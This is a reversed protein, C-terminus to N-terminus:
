GIKAASGIGELWQRVAVYDGETAVFATNPIANMRKRQAKYADVSMAKLASALGAEVPDPLLIGVRAGQLWRGVESDRRGIPVCRFYGGEYLRNPLLWDSNAGEDFYDVMWNFHVSRYLSALDRSRDFPGLFSMGLSRSIVDEFLGTLNEAIRGAITVEVLRPESRVLEALAELSRPCRIVGYWGIRWPPGATTPPGITRNEFSAVEEALMKNELLHVPPVRDYHHGFYREVFALSSVLLLSTRRLLFNEIARLTVGVADGRVMLRHIDVCEFVLPARSGSLWNAFAAVLLTELQRAVFVDVHRYQRARPIVRLLAAFVAWIRSVLRADHTAGLEFPRLAEVTHAGSRGRTFGALVVSMGAAKFMAVRRAVTPDHLDHVFYVVKM